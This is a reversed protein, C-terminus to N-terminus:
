KQLKLTKNEREYLHPFHRRKRQVGKFEGPSEWSEEEGAKRRRLGMKASGNKRKWVGGKRGNDKSLEGQVTGPYSPNSKLASCWGKIEKARETRKLFYELVM